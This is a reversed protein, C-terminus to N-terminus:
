NEEQIFSFYAGYHGRNAIQREILTPSFDLNKSQSVTPFIETNIKVCIGKLGPKIFAYRFISSYM